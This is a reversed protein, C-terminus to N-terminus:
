LHDMELAIQTLSKLREIKALIDAVEEKSFKWTLASGIKKLGSSGTPLLKSQLRELASKYQDIPGNTAALAQVEAYWSENSSTEDVRYILTVLLNSVNSVEIACRARDKSAGKVDNLYGVIVGTLQVIAIISATVSLPDM